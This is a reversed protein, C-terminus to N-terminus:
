PKASVPASVPINWGDSFIIPKVVPPVSFNLISSEPLTPMPVVEGKNRRVTPEEVGDWNAEPSLYLEAKMLLRKSTEPVPVEVKAPPNRRPVALWGPAKCDRPLVVEDKAQPMLRSSPQKAISPTHTPPPAPEPVTLEPTALPM